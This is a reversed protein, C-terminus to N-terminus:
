KRSDASGAQKPKNKPDVKLIAELAEKPDVDFAGIREDREEPTPNRGRSDDAARV